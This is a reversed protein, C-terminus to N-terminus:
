DVTVHLVKPVNGCRAGGCRGCGPIYVLRTRRPRPPAAAHPTPGDTNWASQPETRYDSSEFHSIHVGYAQQLLRLETATMEYHETTSPLDVSGDDPIEIAHIEQREADTTADEGAVAHQETPFSQYQAEQEEQVRQRRLREKLRLLLLERLEERARQEAEERRRREREIDEPSFQLQGPQPQPAAPPRPPEPAPEPPPSIPSGRHPVDPQAADSREPGSQRFSDQRRQWRLQQRAQRFAQEWATPQRNESATASQSSGASPDEAATSDDVSSHPSTNNEQGIEERRRRLSEQMVIFDAAEIQETLQATLTHFWPEPPENSPSPQDSTPEDSLVAGGHAHDDPDGSDAQVGPRLIGTEIDARAQRVSKLRLCFENLQSNAILRERESADAQEQRTHTAWAQQAARIRKLRLAMKRVQTEDVAEPPQPPQADSVDEDVSDEDAPSEITPEVEPTAQEPSERDADQKAMSEDEPTPDPSHSQDAPQQESPLEDASQEVTALSETPQTEAPPDSSSPQTDTDSERDQGESDPSQSPEVHSESIEATSDPAEHATSTPQQVVPETFSQTELAEQLLETALRLDPRRSMHKILPSGQIDGHLLDLLDRTTYFQTDEIARTAQVYSAPLNQLNANGAVLVFVKPISAGQSKYTTVSYGLRIHPFEHVDVRVCRGDDLSVSVASGFPSIATVTGLSGNDVGYGRPGRSNKTFLVRDGVYVRSEYIADDTEDIIVTSNANSITGARLRHEQCIQGATHAIDNTNALIIARHPTLLGVETWDLCAQQVIEELTERITIKNKAAFIEMAGTPEGDAFFKAAVRAWVEKQRRIDTVRSAGYRRALGQLPSASEIAPLQLPDGVMCLSAGERRVWEALKTAQSISTMGSEDVLVITNPTIEEPQPQRFRWTRRRRVVRALQRANHKVAASLPLRFDGLLKTLTEGETDTASALVRAAQGTPAAMLVRFGRRKWADVCAKIAYTKGSGALGLGIRVASKTLTLHRVFRVQEESLGPYKQLVREVEWDHLTNGPRSALHDMHHLLRCEAELLQDTTFRQEGDHHGLPVIDDDHTLYDDIGQLGADPSLGYKPLRDLVALVLERRSFHATQRTLVKVAERIVNKITGSPKRPGHRLLQAVYQDDFGAAANTAQWEQFLEQRSVLPDKKERTELAARAAAEAGSLGKDALWQLIAQRRKSYQKVLERPIGRIRLGKRDVEFEIGLEARLFEALKARYYATFLRQNRFIPVPDISRTVGDKDVGVNFIQMHVHLDPDKARSAAHEWMALVLGVPVHRCGESAKGARSYAFYWEIFRATEEAARWNLQQIQERVKPPSQSWLVGLDKISSLCGEFGACRGERGANQVLPEETRAHFGHFVRHYHEEEIIGTLGLALSGNGSWRGPPEGRMGITYPQTESLGMDDPDPTFDDDSLGDGGAPGRRRKKVKKKRRFYYRALRLYYWESAPCMKDITFM